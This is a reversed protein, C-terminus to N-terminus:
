KCPVPPPRCYRHVGSNGDSTMQSAASSSSLGAGGLGGVLFSAPEHNHSPLPAASAQLPQHQQQSSLQQQSAHQGGGGSLNSESSASVQLSVVPLPHSSKTDPPLQHPRICIMFVPPLPARPLLSIELSLLPTLSNDPRVCHQIVPVCSPAPASSPDCHVLAQLLQSMQQGDEPTSINFITLGIVQSLTLAICTSLPVVPAASRRPAPFASTAPLCPTATSFVATSPPTHLGWSRASSAPAIGALFNSSHQVTELSSTTNDCAAQPDLARLRAAITSGLPPPPPQSAAVARVLM